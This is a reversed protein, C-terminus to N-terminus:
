LIRMSYNGLQQTRAALVKLSFVTRKGTRKGLNVLNKSSQNATNKQKKTTLASSDSPTNLKHLVESHDAATGSEQLMSFPTYM